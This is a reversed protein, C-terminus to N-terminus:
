RGMAKQACRACQGREILAATTLSEGCACFREPQRCAMWFVLPAMEGCDTLETLVDSLRMRLFSGASHDEWQEAVNDLASKVKGNIAVAAARAAKEATGMDQMRVLMEGSARTLEPRPRGQLEAADALLQGVQYAILSLKLETATPKPTTLMPIM